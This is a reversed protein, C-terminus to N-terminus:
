SHGYPVSSRGVSATVPLRQLEVRSVYSPRTVDRASVRVHGLQKWMYCSVLHANAENFAVHHSRDTLRGVSRGPPRFSPLFSRDLQIAAPLAILQSRRCDVLLSASYTAHVVSVAQVDSVPECECDSPLTM